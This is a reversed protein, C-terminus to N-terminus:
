GMSKAGDISERLIDAHGAHQAIEGILHLVVARASWRAGPEFWPAPPLAQTADLDDLGLVLSDTEEAVQRYAALVGDVTEDASMRFTESRERMAAPGSHSAMASPGEVIFRAWQRETSAVHKVLGGLSLESVTPRSRAQEDTLDRLPHTLFFRKGRLAAVLEAQENRDNNDSM